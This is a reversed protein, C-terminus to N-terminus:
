VRENNGKELHPLIPVRRLEIEIQAMAGPAARTIVRPALAKTVLVIRNM